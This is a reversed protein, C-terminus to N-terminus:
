AFAGAVCIGKLEDVFEAGADFQVVEIEGSAVVVVVTGIDGPLDFASDGEGWERSDPVIEALRIEDADTYAGLFGISPGLKTLM